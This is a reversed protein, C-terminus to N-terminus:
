DGLEELMLNLGDRITQQVPIKSTCVVECLALDEEVVEYIGLNEMAEIDNVMISKILQVPFIDFPFVKEYEGTVVYAREEGNMKASLNLTRNPNVWHFLTRSLSFKEFNPAIWGLFEDEAGEPIVSLLNDYFGLYGDASIKTGTLVNGSIYRCENDSVNNALFNKVSAGILTKVYRPKKVESGAIAVAREAKYKGEIFLRGIVAVDQYNITYLTEGKNVPKTKHIQVGVNGAPHPGAFFHKEVNKCNSFVPSSNTSGDLGLHVKGDTLKALADIGTQFEKELGHIIFDADAALPATDFCSIFIDRPVREPNATVNYPRQRLLPWCGSQLLKEKIADRELSDVEAAGFDTYQTEKDALVRVDLLRRKEGRNVKVVEGSVPSTFKVEPHDKDYLLPDGAKVEDGERAALKLRRGPFDIPKVAFTEPSSVQAYIQEAKGELNINTGRKIKHIKSM